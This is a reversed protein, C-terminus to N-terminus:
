RAPDAHPEASPDNSPPPVRVTFVTGGDVGASAVTVSGGLRRSIRDVLALGIGRPRGAGDGRTSFGYTFLEAVVDDPIGPGTDAVALELGDDSGPGITVRVERARGPPLAAVAELANDVLNGALSLLDDAAYRLRDDPLDGPRHRDTVALTAGAEAATWAKDALLAALVPDLVEATVAAGPGRSRDLA